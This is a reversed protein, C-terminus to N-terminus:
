SRATSSGHESGIAVRAAGILGREDHHIGGPGIMFGGVLPSAPEPATTSEHAPRSSSGPSPRIMTEDSLEHVGCAPTKDTTGSQRGGTRTWDRCVSQPIMLGEHNSGHVGWAPTEDRRRNM